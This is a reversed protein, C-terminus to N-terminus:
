KGNKYGNEYKQYWNNRAERAPKLFEALKQDDRSILMAELMALQMRFLALLTAVAQTNTSVVDGMMQVDQGALRSMDRFGGAALEWVVPDAEGERAVTAVLASSLLYPIHSIAAVLHDHRDAEMEFPVAEIAAVLELARLRTAPTTRRTPCLVFPRGKFLNGDSAQVGSVEKGTMPHGGIAHIGVPLRGMVECIDHKTGGIDILLTNSRLYSGIRQEIMSRIMQVPAALIVTDAESVGTKLDDTVADVIGNKLAYERSEASPDIGTITEAHNRLAVALSGGMLGLGVVALHRTKFGGSAM